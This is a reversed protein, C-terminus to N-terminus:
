EPRPARSRRELIKAAYPCSAVLTHGQAEAWEAAAHVLQRGYGKGEHAPEVGTHILDFTGPEAETGLRVYDVRGIVQGELTAVFSGRSSSHQATIELM